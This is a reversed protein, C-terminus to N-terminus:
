VRVLIDGDNVKVDFTGIQMGTVPNEGTDLNWEWLHWPCSISPAGSDTSGLRDTWCKDGNIKKQGVKCLPARQHACRNNLAYYEGDVNFLAIEIGNLEIGLGEGPKLEGVEAVKTYENNTM